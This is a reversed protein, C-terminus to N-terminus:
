VVAIGSVALGRGLSHAVERGYASPRRAGVIAVPDEAARELLRRLDGAVHLVAPPAPLALLARPYAPDCRCITELGAARSRASVRAVDLSALEDRLRARAHGGLAAILEENELGLVHELRGRAAEIHGA